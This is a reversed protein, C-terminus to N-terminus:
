KLRELSEHKQSTNKLFAKRGLIILSKLFDVAKLTVVAILIINAILTLDLYPFRILPNEVPKNIVIGLIFLQFGSRSLNVWESTFSFKLGYAILGTGLLALLALSYWQSAAPTLISEAGQLTITKFFLTNFRLYIWVLVAYGVLMLIFPIVSSRAQRKQAMKNWDIKFKPWPFRIEKQSQTMFYFLIGVFGLDFVFTMPLYFLAQLSDIKPIYFFPFVLFSTKFILSVVSLCFHFVFLIGTYRFLYGKYVPSIIETDENYKEAVKRPSGYSDIVRELSEENVKGFEQETKELIHSKIENLIEKKESAATLYHSIEELYKKLQKHM